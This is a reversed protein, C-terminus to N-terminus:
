LRHKEFPPESGSHQLDHVHQVPQICQAAYGTCGYVERRRFLM